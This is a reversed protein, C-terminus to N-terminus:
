AGLRADLKILREICEKAYNIQHSFVSVAQFSASRMLLTRNKIFERHERIESKIFANKVDKEEAQDNREVIQKILSEAANIEAYIPNVAEFSAGKLRLNAFYIVQRQYNIANRYYSNQELKDDNTLFKEGELVQM